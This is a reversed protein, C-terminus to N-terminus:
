ASFAVVPGDHDGRFRNAVLVPTFHWLVGNISNALM